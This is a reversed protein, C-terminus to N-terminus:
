TTTTAIPNPDGAKYLKVTVNPIGNEGADQIGNGNADDWVRDGISAPTYLGADVTTNHQGATLTITPSKGDAPNADSDVTDDGGQNLLTFAKGSPLIFEVVYNGPDLNDFSYLGDLDTTTTAIPNNLDGAKYLKVTVGAIGSEDVDQIGNGNADDWVRDGISGGSIAVKADDTDSVDNGIPSGFVDSPTGTATAINTHNSDILRPPTTCTDSAGQAYPGPKTCVTFDDATNGPTGNDDKVQVNRLITEGTNTFIYTFVVNTPGNIQLVGGDPANGALKTLQIGPKAYGFDFDMREAIAAPEIVKAPEPHILDGSTLVMGELPNGANFNSDEIEVWYVPGGFTIQVNYWGHETTPTNPDDGTTTSAFLTDGGGSTSPDFNGDGDDTWIRITVGDIGPENADQVGDGDLDHWVYDGLKSAGEPALGAASAANIGWIGLLGMLFLTVALAIILHRNQNRHMIAKKM